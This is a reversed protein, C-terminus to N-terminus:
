AKAPALASAWRVANSACDVEDTEALDGLSLIGKLRKSRDLVVQRCVHIEAMSRAVDELEDDEFCYWVEPSMVDRVTAGGRNSKALARVVIDRDTLMGILRDQEAVPLAGCDAM